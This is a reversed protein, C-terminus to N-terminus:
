ENDYKEMLNNFTNNTNKTQMHKEAIIVTTEIEEFNADNLWTVVNKTFRQNESCYRLYSELAQMIKDFSNKKIAKNFAVEAKQKSGKQIFGDKTRVPIYAQWFNEFQLNEDNPQQPKDQSESKPKKETPRGGKKGNEKNAKSQKIRKAADRKLNDIIPNIVMTIALDKSELVEFTKNFHYIIKLCEKVQDGSMQCFYKDWYDAYLPFGAKGIIEKKIEEEM